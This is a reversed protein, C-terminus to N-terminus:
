FDDNSILTVHYKEELYFYQEKMYGVVIIIDDIGVARLQEITREILVEGRVVLTGKPKEYSLPVFRSSTGAALIIANDVKYPALAKVGLPTIHSNELYKRSELLKVTSNVTGLSLGTKQSLDRQVTAPTVRLTNLISFENETLM